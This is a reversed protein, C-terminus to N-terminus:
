FSISTENTMPLLQDSDRKRKKVKLEEDLFFQQGKQTELTLIKGGYRLHLKEGKDSRVSVHNLKGAKWDIDV